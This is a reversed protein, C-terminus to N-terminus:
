EGAPWDAATAIGEVLGMNVGVGNQMSLALPGAGFPRTFVHALEHALLHDGLGRWMIHIEGLWIKAVLTRRAGMLQGKQERDAYVFSRVKEGGSSAVPDTGFFARMEAYRFEHDEVLEDLHGSFHRTAPYYIVFHETEVVGGLEEAILARDLRVGFSQEAATCCGAAITAVTAWSAVHGIRRASRVRRAVELGLVMSTAWCVHTLRYWLLSAPMSLAEDYISGSFFGILWQHGIIPPESALHVGLALGNAVCAALGLGLRVRHRSSVASLGWALSQGILVSGTPIVGWFALGLLPDCNPVRIMHLTLVGLAPVLLTLLNRAYLETFWVLPRESDVALPSFARADIAASTTFLAGLGALVGLVASSEYGLLNFLPLLCCVLAAAVSVVACVLTTRDPFLWDRM